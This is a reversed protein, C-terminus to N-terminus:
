RHSVLVSWYKSVSNQTKHESKIMTEVYIKKLVALIDNKHTFINHSLLWLYCRTVKQDDKGGEWLAWQCKPEM